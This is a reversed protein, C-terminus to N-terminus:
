LVAILSAALQLGVNWGLVAMTSHRGLEDFLLVLSSVLVVFFGATSGEAWAVIFVIILYALAFGARPHFLYDVVILLAMAAMGALGALPPPGNEPRRAAPVVETSSADRSKEV